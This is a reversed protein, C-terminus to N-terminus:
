ITQSPEAPEATQEEDAANSQFGLEVARAYDPCGDHICQEHSCYDCPCFQEFRENLACEAYCYDSRLESCDSCTFASDNHSCSAICHPTCSDNCDQCPDEDPDIFEGNPDFHSINEYPNDPNYSSLFERLLQLAEAMQMRGLM